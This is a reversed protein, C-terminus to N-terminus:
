TQLAPPPDLLLVSPVREVALQRLLGFGIGALGSMLGPTEAELPVGCRWGHEELTGLTRALVTRREDQWRPDHMVRSAELVLDLNGMDGHCLCHSSGFGNSLTTEVAAQIDGSLDRDVLHRQMRIRALGIGPAGHCWSTMYIREGKELNHGGRLDPWNKLQSSFLSSEFDLGQLGVDRYSADDTAGYLELLAYSIGATGHSFGTLAQIPCAAGKWGVGVEMPEAREILRDGMRRALELARSSGTIRHYSLLPLIGGACGRMMDLEEDDDILPALDELFEGAEALLDPRELLAGLHTWTYVLGAWGDYAGVAHITQRRNEIKRRLVPLGRLALDRYKSDGSVEAMYALFLIIGPLGGYLDTELSRLQWGHEEVMAMGLWSAEDGEVHALEEIRDAVAVAAAMLTAPQPEIPDRTLTYRIAGPESSMELGILSKDIFGLQKQLDQLSFNGLYRRVMDFGSRVFINSLEGGDELPVDRTGLVNTFYPLDGQWIAQREQPILRLAIDPFKTRQFGFWLRDILRDRDIANRLLDPHYSERLIYSYFATARFIARVEVGLFRRLPSAGDLLTERHELLLRYMAEFGSMLPDRYQLPNVVEGKLTPRNGAPPITQRERSLTMEDTGVGKWTPIEDSSLQNEAGGLGSTDVVHRAKLGKRLYPLLMVRKVSRYLDLDAMSEHAPRDDMGYDAPCLSELDILIPHEGRAILNERHFDNANLAYLLALYAGQRRYFREVEAESQCGVFPIHECWGHHKRNLIKATRLDPAGKDNLWDLLEGFRLDITLDRPKYVIKFGSDFHLVRVTRGGRHSDGMGGSVGRLRGLPEGSRFTEALSQSDAALRELLEGSAEAWRMLREAVLRALVSYEKLFSLAAEPQALQHVFRQFREEKGYDDLKGQLAAVRMELVVTRSLMADLEEPLGALLQHAVVAPDFPLEAEGDSAERALGEATETLQAIAARLLPRVIATFTVREDASIAVRHRSFADAIFRLWPPPEAHRAAISPASEGLMEFLEEEALGDARLRQLFCYEDNFPSQARWEALRRSAEATDIDTAPPAGPFRRRDRLREDLTLALYWDSAELLPHSPDEDVPRPDRRKQTMVSM